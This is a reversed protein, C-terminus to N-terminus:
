VLLRREEGEQASTVICLFMVNADLDLYIILKLVVHLLSRLNYILDCFIILILHLHGVFGLTNNYM